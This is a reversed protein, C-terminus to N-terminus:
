SLFVVKLTDLNFNGPHMLGLQRRGSHAHWLAALVGKHEADFFCPSFGASVVAFLLKHTTPEGPLINSLVSTYSM